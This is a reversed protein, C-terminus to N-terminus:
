LDTANYVKLAFIGRSLGYLCFFGGGAIEGELRMNFILKGM